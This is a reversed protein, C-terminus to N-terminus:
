FMPHHFGAIWLGCPQLIFYVKYKVDGVIIFYNDTGEECELTPVPCDKWTHYADHLGNLLVSAAIKKTNTPKIRLSM